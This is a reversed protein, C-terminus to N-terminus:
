IEENFKVYRGEDRKKKENLYVFADIWVPRNNLTAFHSAIDWKEGGQSVHRSPNRVVDEGNQRSCLTKVLQQPLWNTTFTLSMETAEGRTRIM